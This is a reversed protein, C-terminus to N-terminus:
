FRAGRVKVAKGSTSRWGLQSRPCPSFGEGRMGSPGLDGVARQLPHLFDFNGKSMLAQLFIM